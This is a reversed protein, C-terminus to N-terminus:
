KSMKECIDIKMGEHYECNLGCQFDGRTTLGLKALEDKSGKQCAELTPFIAHKKSRKSNNKDPYIISTWEQKSNGGGFCGAFTLAFVASFLLTKTM